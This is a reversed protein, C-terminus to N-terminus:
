LRESVGMSRILYEEIIRSWRNVDGETFDAYPRAPLKSKGGGEDQVRAYPLRSDLTISRNTIRLDMAPDGRVTMSDRLAETAHLIRPDLDLENKRAAWSPSLQKWSGGGRRGQGEFNMEIAHLLDDAVLELAPKARKVATMGGRLMDLTEKVGFVKVTFTL